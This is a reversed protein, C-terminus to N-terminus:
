FHLGGLLYDWPPCLGTRDQVTCDRDCDGYTHALLMMEWDVGRSIAAQLRHPLDRICSWASIVVMRELSRCYLGSVEQVSMILVKRTSVWPGVEYLCADSGAVFTTTPCYHDTVWNLSLLTMMTRQQEIPVMCVEGLNVLPNFHGKM